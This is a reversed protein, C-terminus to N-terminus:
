GLGQSFDIATGWEPFDILPNRNGQKQYIAANRHKEHETVPFRQHWDLLVQLRDRTYEQQQNNIFGPYRLLFYLTARAAEGKGNGPEFKKSQSESKGCNSRIAEEFDPFDYFPTNGRFSNCEMECAFLHHLDGRMPEKKDFWSQPVVHECNYPLNSELSDLELFQGGGATMLERLRDRRQQDVQLDDQIITEPEFELHSYISRIQLDPQLDVWPYVHVKPNYSLTRRHTRRVLDKLQDFLEEPSLSAVTDLLDVYYQDRDTADAAADYYALDGRRAQELLQLAETLGPVQALDANTSPRDSVPIETSIGQVAISQAVTSAPLVIAAQGLQVSVQLPITWTVKGDTIGSPTPSLSPTPSPAYSPAIAPSAMPAPVSTEAPTPPTPLVLQAVSTTGMGSFLESRLQEQAPTLSQERVHKVISSVRVGENAKWALRDEGMAETWIQGDIALLNGNADQDPVGSHHLGVVEWQDNFVPSGSSGPATDTMYHLFDDFLDVLRNERLALQKPKGEPHQIINVYEGLIVKGQEEILPNWGFSALSGTANNKVAVLTYDLPESTIFFQAPDLEFAQAQLVQGDIGSQYNFEMLSFQADRASTLVHNNTLLLQPSVLFGTGYGVIRRRNNRIVIRGISRSVQLGLELYAIGMLDYQGLIRERVVQNFAQDSLVTTEIPRFATARSEAITVAAVPNNELRELRKQVREATDVELLLGAELKEIHETRPAQRQQYRQM